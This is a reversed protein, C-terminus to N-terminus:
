REPVYGGLVGCPSYVTQHLQMDRARFSGACSLMYYRFMRYFRDGYQSRFNHWSQDFKRWWAMLTPDYHAGLNQWDELVLIGEFGKALQVPSPIAGQPFIYKNFWPDTIARSVDQGCNQLLFLGDNKLMSRAVKYFSRYNKSGVHEVMGISVVKDFKEAMRTPVDRYDMNVIEVNPNSINNKAYQVQGKALNVGMVKCGHNDAMWKALGGWGCGIDLVRDSAKLKIKRCILEMKNEQARNLDSKDTDKFYACTYQNYPDLFSMYLPDGIDYHQETVKKAGRRTQLNLLKAKLVHITTVWNRSIAREGGALLLRAMMEDLADCDWWSDMYSEGLGLTGQSLVRDYTDENHVHIDWPRSGNITVDAATMINECYTRSNM